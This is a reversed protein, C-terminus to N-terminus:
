DHIKADILNSVASRVEGADGNKYKHLFYADEVARYFPGYYEWIGDNHVSTPPCCEEHHYRRRMTADYLEEASLSPNIPLDVFRSAMFLDFNRLFIDSPEPPMDYGVGRFAPEIYNQTIRDHIEREGMRLVLHLYEDWSLLLARDEM